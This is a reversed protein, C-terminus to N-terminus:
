KVEPNFGEFLDKQTDIAKSIKDESVRFVSSIVSESLPVDVQTENHRLVRIVKHKVKRTPVEILQVQMVDTTHLRLQDRNVLDWFQNTLNYDFDFSREQDSLMEIRGRWSRRRHWDPSFVSIETIGLYIPHEDPLEAVYLHFDKKPIAPNGGLKFGTVCEDKQLQRYIKNKQELCERPPASQVEDAKKTIYRDIVAIAESHGKKAWDDASEGTFLILFPSIGVFSVTWLLNAKWGGEEPIAINLDVELGLYKAIEKYAEIFVLLTDASIEHVGELNEFHILVNCRDSM